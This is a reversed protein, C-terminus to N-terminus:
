FADNSRKNYSSLSIMGGLGLCLSTRTIRIAEQWGAEELFHKTDFAFFKQLAVESREMTLSHIFFIVTLVGSSSVIFLSLKGLWRIRRLLCICAFLWVICFCVIVRGSQFSFESENKVGDDFSAPLGRLTHRFYERSPIEIMPLMMLRDELPICSQNPKFWVLTKNKNCKIENTEPSFCSASNWDNVCLTSKSVGVLSEIAYELSFSNILAYNVARLFSLSCVMWGVGQLLPFNLQFARMPGVQAIQGIMMELYLMPVGYVAMSLCYMVLFTAGGFKRVALPFHYYNGNGLTYGIVTLLFQARSAFEGREDRPDHDPM